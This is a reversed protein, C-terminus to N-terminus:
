EAALARAEGWADRAFDGRGVWAIAILDIIEDENCGDIADRLEQLTADDGYDELILREEDEAPDSGAELIEPAVKIDFERAKLIIFCVKDPNIELEVPEPTADNIPM